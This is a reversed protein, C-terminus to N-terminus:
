RTKRARLTNSASHVKFSLAAAIVKTGCMGEVASGQLLTRTIRPNEEMLVLDVEGIAVAIVVFSDRWGVGSAAACSADKM